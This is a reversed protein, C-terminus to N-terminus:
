VFNVVEVTTDAIQELELKMYEAFKKNTLQLIIISESQPKLPEDSHLYVRNKVIEYSSKIVREIFGEFENFATTKIALLTSM